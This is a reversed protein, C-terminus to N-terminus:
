PILIFIKSDNLVPGVIQSMIRTKFQQDLAATELSRGAFGNLGGRSALKDIIFSYYVTSVFLKKIEYLIVYGAVIM